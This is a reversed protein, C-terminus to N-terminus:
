SKEEQGPIAPYPSVGARGEREAAGLEASGGSAAAASSIAAGSLHRRWAELVAATVALIAPGLIMGSLGFVAVGGLFAVLAPVPHMRMREGALRVYVVNDVILFSLVGWGALAGAALWRGALALYAAAPLWVLGAGVVPLISLVFMVAAWLVPAPLGLAWFMLGGGTADILSTVFTAYLNAHVSDAARAFVRNSEERSLPLLERLGHLFAARDRFLYYLIFVAVLFQIVATVSGQALGSLNRTYSGVLNRAEAEVDLGFREMWTVVEGLAPMGVVKERLGGEAAGGQVRAAASGAERALYYTVFAGASLIMVAVAATTVAAARDPRALHRSVWHYVPWAIIALAVGWTIAPLFPVAVLACLGLLLVTVTALTLLRFREGVAAPRETGAPPTLPTPATTAPAPPVSASEM